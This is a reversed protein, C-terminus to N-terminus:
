ILKSVENPLDRLSLIEPRNEDIHGFGYKCFIFPIKAYNAADLDVQADGVFVAKKIHNREIVSVTNEGKNKGTNGSCEIDTFYKEFHYYKLFCEIYGSQCNSVIFLSYNKCLLSLTEELFDFLVGGHSALYSNEVKCCEELVKLRVSEPQEPLLAKIIDSMVRGMLAQMDSETIQLSFEDHKAFVSNWSEVVQKSSNWLTGDLDFLIGKDFLNM